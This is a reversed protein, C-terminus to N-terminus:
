TEGPRPHASTRTGARRRKVVADASCLPEIIGRREVRCPRREGAKAVVNVLQISRRARQRRRNIICQRLLLRDSMPRIYACTSRCFSEGFHADQLCRFGDLDVTPDENALLYSLGVADERRVMPAHVCRSLCRDFAFGCCGGTLVSNPARDTAVIWGLSADQISNELQRRGGGSVCRSRLM